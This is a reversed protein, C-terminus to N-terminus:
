GEGRQGPAQIRRVIVEFAPIGGITIETRAETKAPDNPGYMQLVCGIFEGTIDKKTSSWLLGPRLFKGLYVAGTLPSVGIGFNDLM